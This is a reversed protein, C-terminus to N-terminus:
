RRMRRRRRRGYHSMAPPATASQTVPAGQLPALASASLIARALTHLTNVGITMRETQNTTMM